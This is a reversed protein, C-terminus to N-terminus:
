VLNKPPFIKNSCRCGGVCVFYKTAIFLIPVLQPRRTTRLESKKQRPISAMRYTRPSFPALTDCVGLINVRSLQAV